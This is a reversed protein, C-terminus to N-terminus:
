FLIGVAPFGQPFLLFVMLIACPNALKSLLAQFKNLSNNLFNVSLVRSYLVPLLPINRLLALHVAVGFINLKSSKMVEGSVCMCVGDLMKMFMVEFAVSLNKDILQYSSM